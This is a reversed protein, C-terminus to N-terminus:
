SKNSIYEEIKGLVMQALNLVEEENGAKFQDNPVHPQTHYSPYQTKKSDVGREKLKNVLNELDALKTSFGSVQTALSKISHDCGSKGSKMYEAAILAKEVAQHVKFYFWETATCGLDTCGLDNSAAILDCKAQRFWREAEEPNSRPRKSFSWFRFDNASYSKKYQTRGRKHRSAESNWQNFFSSFDEGNSSFSGKHNSSSGENEARVIELEKVKEQIYHCLKTTVETNSPNKDPHWKLYLRRIAKQREDKPLHRIERLYEHIERKINDFSEYKQSTAQQTNQPKDVLVLDECVGVSIKQQSFKYLDLNNVIIYSDSGIKIKYSQMKTDKIYLEASLREVFIAYVYDNSTTDKYGVYEGVKFNHMIDMELTHILEEPIPDGPNPLDLPSQPKLNTTHIGKDELIKKIDQPDECSLMLVLFLLSDKSLANNLLLNIETAMSHIIVTRMSFQMNDKHELFVMCNGTDSVKTYVQKEISTNRLQKSGSCLITELKQCCIVQIKTFIKECKHVVEGETLNGSYQSRILSVLGNIFYPSVLLNYFEAQFECSNGYPCIQLVSENLLEETVQSLMKPRIEEPLFHLLNIQKYPDSSLHCEGLDVLFTFKGKLVGVDRRSDTTIRDNFCLSDSAYLGADSAPLYLPSLKELLREEAKSELLSFLHHLTRKVTTMQNPNLSNMKKCDEYLARLVQALHSSSPELAVGLKQFFERYPALLPPLRYLYPRFENYNQLSFVVQNYRVLKTDDEVLVIPLDALAQVDFARSQLFGYTIQLVKTRTKSASPTKCPVLCIKRLNSVVLDEPPVCIAGAAKMLSLKNKTQSFKSPLIPMSTWVLEEDEECQKVLSNKLTLFNRGEAYPAHLARLNDRVKHPYIFNINALKDYFRKELTDEDLNCLYSILVDSKEILEKLPTSRKAEYSVQAAFAIFDDPSVSCKIGLDKLLKNLYSDDVACGMEKFFTPPVFKERPIMIKFLPESDEYFYDVQQFVGSKDEILKIHKLSLVIQEKKLEYLPYYYCIINYLLRLVDSTQDDAIKDVNPLIYDMFFELDDIVRIGIDESMETNIRTKKLFISSHDLEYLNPFIESFQTTLIYVVVYKEISEFDGKMTEFLPLSKLQEQYKQKEESSKMGSHLFRLITEIEWESLNHWSLHRICLQELIATKDDTRLSNPRICNFMVKFSFYDSSIKAFGLKLLIQALSNQAMECIVSNLSGLPALLRQNNHSPCLVPLIALDSFLSKLKEFTNESEDENCRLQSEFYKWLKKLWDFFVENETWNLWLHPDTSNIQFRYGLRDRIFQEARFVTFDELFGAAMLLDKYKKNVDYNAFCVQSEPFLEQFKSIFKPSARQFKRLMNDQTVLLPLHNICSYNGEKVDSVCYDLLAVCRTGDKILSQGLLLPIGSKTLDPNNLPHIQLFKRVSGPNLILSDMGARELGKFVKTMYESQLVLNMGIDELIEVLKSHVHATVFHPVEDRKEKTLSSWTINIIKKEGLHHFQISEHRVIPILCINRQYMCKYVQNIMIQWEQPVSESVHPFFWLYHPEINNRCLEMSNFKLVSARGGSLTIRIYDLLDAYLPAILYLKLFNNWKMKGSQGDQKWLDRRAFDVAFNGNVHVPLGTEIPLPLSCFAKGQFSDCNVCAAVSSRPLLVQGLNCCLDQVSENVEADPVGVKNALIWKTRHKCSSRIEMEYIVQYPEIRTVLTASSTFKRIYQKLHEQERTSETSMKVEATFIEQMESAKKDMKHFSIKKINNLFLLLSDSNEKLVELLELIVEKTVAQKSIDSKEAMEATRLPLRFMTGQELNFFSPLFTTYVDEFTKKFKQNVVFMGGPSHPKATSLVALQPDFICLMGDGSIFSPCDTLHYVSNFGLGYKGTKEPNNRKGGEGLQQIGEIDKDTFKKNNYVCLAPGQLANWEEGFTKTHGHKRPDWIFHIESAEADDANQILEKLIDKKSPYAKIINKLRVTLKEQQGFEQAWLSLDSVQLNKLARHKTTQVNFRVATDRAILQHCLNVDDGLILWPTDNYQLTEASRLILNQDPLLVNQVELSEMGEEESAEIFGTTVIRLCVALDSESLRSSGYKESMRKLVSVYDQLRFREKIELCKWLEECEMYEKPVEYLYPGIDFSVKRAVLKVSVFEGNVFMFPFEQASPCIKDKSDPDAKLQKCLYSYCEKTIRKVDSVALNNCKYTQKLQELVTEVPPQKNLGLFSIAEPSLKMGKCLDRDLIMETMNVLAQYKCSYLDVARVLVINDGPGKKVQSHPLMAPLLPINQLKQQNDSNYQEQDKLLDLINRTRQYAKNRDHSWIEKVTWARHILELFSIKDKTMGLMELRLLREPHLFDQLTGVPFRGDEQDYLCAVKGEPHVLNEIRQLESRGSIPVCATTRLMEDIALDRMDIAHVVFDNRTKHNLVGLNHFVIERYFSEWTYTNQDIVSDCGSAVFGKRVWDPLHVALLPKPLYRAFERVAAAGVRRNTLVVSDLFRSESITGWEKGNSFAKISVGSIGHAVTKYFKELVVRFQNDVKKLNPWYTYYDYNEIEGKQAMQQMLVVCTIYAASVADELLAQNWDGKSGTSWLNKRNSTVAFTGNVHVPLGCQVSLPLFCFVQGVPSETDPMWHGTEKRKRLPVAVSGLPLAYYTNVTKSCAIQLAKSMGFCSHVLWYKMQSPNDITEETFQIITSTSFNKIKRNFKNTSELISVANEQMKKIPFTDAVEIICLVQREMKFVPIVQNEHVSHESIFKLSVKKVNKLFVILDKSTQRFSDVLSMIHKQNYYKNCIESVTAEEPTRFPLKILTGEYYFNEGAAIKFNCGFIGNYPNFQGHFRQILRRHEYLNLKIGPNTASLIHKKLHTVNPDFILLYKGSLISPVDTIHYVSNFGLGFKGIKEVQKAKAGTGVRTINQFDAETFCENNYSWLAPGHCSAMGPDILTEPSDKSQRMDVLFSCVTAGADEANQILEKFLDHEQDYEKLINRIRLILPEVQGYQEIGFLEPNLVRTSLAPVNLWEITALSIEEHVVYFTEGDRNVDDLAEKNMDCLVANSLPQLCFGGQNGKWVPVPLDDSPAINKRRMWDLISIIAKLENSSGYGSNLKDLSSKVHHLILIIEESPYGTKVGCETLLERYQSIEQPVKKMYCSLDLGEPYSFVISQPRSFGAGDWVWPMEVGMLLGKFQSLNRQMHGYITHLDGMFNYNSYNVTDVQQVILLLNEVVKEAPPLSTLGLIKSAKEIFRDTLLMGSGVINNYKSDRLNEPKHFDINAEVPEPSLKSFSPVWQLSCLQEIIQSTCNALVSTQNCIAILAEARRCTDSLDGPQSQQRDILKAVKLVDDPGINEEKCKLGLRQLTQLVKEDQCFVPSPFLHQFEPQFLDQFASNNPDFLASAQVMKDKSTLFKLAKCRHLLEPKQKFLVESYRLVWLMARETQEPEYRQSEVGKCLLLGVDAATLLKGRMLLLKRDKEDVCRLVTEPLLVDDPIEPFIDNSVAEHSAAAVLGKNASKLSPMPQFIPLKFLVNKEDVDFGSAEALFGRLSRRDELAMTGVEKAVQDCGLNLFVKLVGSPNPLLVYETLQQHKLYDDSSSSQIVSGGVGTIIKIIVDPLQCGNQGEFIMTAKKSLSALQISSQSQTLPSLPILPLGEFDELSSCNKYLFGWFEVMWNLPPQHSDKLDWTVRGSNQTWNEPLVKRVYQKVLEVDLCTVNAFIHNNAVKHLHDLTTANLHLAFELFLLKQDYPITDLDCHQLINRLSAPSVMNLGDNACALEIAKFVHSPVRVLPHAEEILVAEIAQQMEPQDNCHLFIAKDARIWKEESAALFLVNFELLRKITKSIIHIWREKHNMREYDPWLYYVSAPRLASTQALTIGDLIIRCYAFPLIKQMLLENWKAVEDYRQDTEVWKIHRRNDSLGFFANVHVPLRTKNSENDPLPLFCCLRGEFELKGGAELTEAQSLPFALGVYPIYSLKEALEDLSAWEGANATCSTILWHNQSEDESAQQSIARVCTSTKVSSFFEQNEVNLNHNFCPIYEPQSAIVRLLAKVNGDMDVHKVSISTVNRLFLLTTEADAQFSDFLDFIKDKDYLNESIDSPESRLPFRFLTGKFYHEKLANSWSITGTTEMAYKFPRMQDKSHELTKRDEADDLSWIYGGEEEGFLMEQPDLFGVYKGSFITPLDTVHYITNFGLGFQGVKNPDNRKTSTGTNQIGQWDEESFVSDNYVLLAPGQFSKLDKLFLSSTGYSREDFLFVVEKAEADDANQILEKLIQSGDPYRRLIQKLYDIYPPATAGFKKRAKKNASNYSGGARNEHHLLSTMVFSAATYRKRPLMKELM